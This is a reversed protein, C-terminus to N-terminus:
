ISYSVSCEGILKGYLKINEDSWKLLEEVDTASLQPNKEYEQQANVKFYKELTEMITLFFKFVASNQIFINLICRM